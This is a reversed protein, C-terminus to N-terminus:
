GIVCYVCFFSVKSPAGLSFILAPSAYKHLVVSYTEVSHRAGHILRQRM